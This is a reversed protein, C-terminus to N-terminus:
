LTNEWRYVRSGDWDVEITLRGKDLHVLFSEGYIPVGRSKLRELVMKQEEAPTQYKILDEPSVRVEIM